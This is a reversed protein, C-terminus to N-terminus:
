QVLMVINMPIELCEVAQYSDSSWIQMPCAFIMPSLRFGEKEVQVLNGLSFPM